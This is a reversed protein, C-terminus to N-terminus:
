GLLWPALPRRRRPLGNSAGLVTRRVHGRRRLLRRRGGPMCRGRPHGPLPRVWRAVAAPALSLRRAHAARRGPLLISCVALARGSCSCRHVPPQARAAARTPWRALPGRLHRGAPTSARTTRAAAAAKPTAPPAYQALGLPCAATIDPLDLSRCLARQAVDARSAPEIGREDYTQTGPRATGPRQLLLRHACHALHQPSRPGGGRTPTSLM